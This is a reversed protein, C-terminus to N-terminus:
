TKIKIVFKNRQIVHYMTDRFIICETTISHQLIKIFIIEDSYYIVVNDNIILLLNFVSLLLKM